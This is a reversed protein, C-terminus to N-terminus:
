DRHIQSGVGYNGSARPLPENNEEGNQVGIDNSLPFVNIILKFTLM